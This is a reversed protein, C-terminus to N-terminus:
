ASARVQGSVAVVGKTGTPLRLNGPCLYLTPPAPVRRPPRPRTFREGFGGGSFTKRTQALSHNLSPHLISRFLSGVRGPKSLSGRRQTASRVKAHIECLRRM